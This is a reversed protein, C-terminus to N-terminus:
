QARTIPDTKVELRPELGTELDLAPVTPHEERDTKGSDQATTEKNGAAMKRAVTPIVVETQICTILSTRGGHRPVPM